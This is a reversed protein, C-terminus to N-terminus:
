AAKILPIGLRSGIFTNLLRFDANMIRLLWLLLQGIKYSIGVYVM